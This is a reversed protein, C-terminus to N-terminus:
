RERAKQLKPPKRITRREHDRPAAGPMGTEKRFQELQKRVSPKDEGTRIGEARGSSRLSRPDTKTKASQPNREADVDRVVAAKDVTNLNFREVIRTIKPADGARAIVDVQANPDDNHRERLVSYLVGYRKAERAFTALDKRRVTFVRLEQGSKIMSTLRAKGHTKQEEKLVAAILVALNKAGAGSVRAVVEVGELSMRVVQEAADGGANM